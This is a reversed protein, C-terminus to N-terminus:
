IKCCMVAFDHISCLLPLRFNLEEGMRFFVMQFIKIQKVALPSFKPAETVLGIM